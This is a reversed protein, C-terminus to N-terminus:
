AKKGDSITGRAAPAWAHKPIGPGAPPASESGGAMPAEGSENEPMGKLFEEVAATGTFAGAMLCLALFAAAHNWHTFHQAFLPRRTSAAVIATGLSTHALMQGIATPVLVIPLGSGPVLPLTCIMPFVIPMTHNRRDPEEAVVMWQVPEPEVFARLRERWADRSPVPNGRRGSTFSREHGPM